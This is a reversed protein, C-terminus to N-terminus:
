GERAPSVLQRLVSRSQSFATPSPMKSFKGAGSHMKTNKRHGKNWVYSNYGTLLM